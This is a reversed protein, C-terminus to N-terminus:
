VCRYDDVMDQLSVSSLTSNINDSLRAFIRKNPCYADRCVGEACESLDFGDDLADLIEKISIDAAPRALRYGGLAGRDSALIGGKKLLILLQELYKESHGTQKSLASLPVTGDAVAILFCMKLGYKTRTTLKM